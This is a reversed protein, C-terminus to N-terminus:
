MPERRARDRRDKMTAADALPDGIAAVEVDTSRRPDEKILVM